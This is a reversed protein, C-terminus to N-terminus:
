EKSPANSKETQETPTSHLTNVIIVFLDDEKFFVQQLDYNKNAELDIVVRIKDPNKHRGIRITKVYRGNAKIINKLTPGAQTNPFDCVVRPLGKEIGFVNPPHFDTLKFQIMEGRNTTNDFTVSQLVPTGPKKVEPQNVIKAVPSTTEVPQEKKAAAVSVPSVAPQIKKAEANDISNKEKTGTEATKEAPNTPSKTNQGTAVSAASPLRAMTKSNAAGNKKQQANKQQAGRRDATNGIKKGNDVKIQVPPNAAPFILITLANTTQDFHQQFGIEQEDTLDFVVRTKPHEGTHLGIRIQKIYAGDTQISNPMTRAIGTNPFDFVVRPNKGKIAFTKPIYTGNLKFTVQERNTDLTKFTISKLTPKEAAQVPALFITLFFYFFFVSGFIKNM